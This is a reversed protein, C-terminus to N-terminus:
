RIVIRRSVTGQRVTLRATYLGQAMGQLSVQTARGKSLSVAQSLVLRGTADVLALQGDGSDLDSILSIYERAPNPSAQLAFPEGRKRIGTLGASTRLSTRNPTHRLVYRMRYVQDKTFIDMCSDLSYDMYNQYMVPGYGPCSEPPQPCYQHAGAAPPTDDCYDTASCDSGDGWIHILGFFHGIEHTATRGYKYLRSVTGTGFYKYGVVVGDPQSYVSAGGFALDTVPFSAYGLYDTLDVVWINLYQDTPWVSLNKFVDNDGIGYTAQPGLVRVIGNTPNGQPDTTAMEFQIGAPASRADTNYGRSGPLRNYDQNLTPVQSLVQAESLNRGQGVPEGYHIVHVVVPIRYVATDVDTHAAADRRRAFQVAQEFRAGGPMAQRLEAPAQALIDMTACRQQAQLAMPLAALLALALARFPSRFRSHPM